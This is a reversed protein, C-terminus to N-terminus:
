HESPVAGFLKPLVVTFTTGAGLQSEVSISGNMAEALRQSIALGLGLGAGRRGIAAEAQYFPRFVNSGQDETMGIGTDTVHISVTSSDTEIAVSIGGEDTFKVANTVLNILVQRLRAPDTMFSRLSADPCDIVQVDLSRAAALPEIIAVTSRVEACLDVPETMIRLTGAEARAIDLLQDILGLLHTAASHIRELQEKQASNVEGVIEEMLLGAFGIVAQLPTRLEHSMAALFESKARSAAEAQETREKLEVVTQELETTADELAKQQQQRTSIDRLVGTFVREGLHTYEGFSIELSIESGDRRLGPLEIGRWPINRRGTKLYRAIGTEHASRYREPMLASMPRGTVEDANWGFVEEAAHNFSLIEGRANMTIIVDGATEVLARYQEERDSMEQEAWVRRLFQGLQAGIDTITSSLAESEVLPETTYCEIVGIARTGTIVPFAAGGKLGCRLAAAKRPYDEAVSLDEIFITHARDLVRGPLGVGREFTRECSAERFEALSADDPPWIDGCKLHAGNPDLRWFLAVRWGMTECLIQLVRLIVGDEREASSLVRFVTLLALDHTTRTDRAAADDIV